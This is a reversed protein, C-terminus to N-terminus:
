VHDKYNPNNTVKYLIIFLLIVGIQIANFLLSVVFLFKM